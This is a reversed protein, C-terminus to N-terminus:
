WKDGGLSRSTRNGLKRSNHCKIAAGARAGKNLMLRLCALSKAM